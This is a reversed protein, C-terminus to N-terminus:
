LRLAAFACVRVAGDPVARGITRGHRWRPLGAVFGIDAGRGRAVDTVRRPPLNARRRVLRAGQPTPWAHQHRGYCLRELQCLHACACLALGGIAARSEQQIASLALVVSCARTLHKVPRLLRSTSPCRRSPPQRVHGHARRSHGPAHAGADHIPGHCVAM